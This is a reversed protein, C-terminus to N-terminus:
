RSHTRWVDLVMSVTFFAPLLLAGVVVLVTGSLLDTMLALGTLGLAALVAFAIKWDDGIIFDYWFRAFGKLFRM